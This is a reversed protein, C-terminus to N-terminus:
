DVVVLFRRASHDDVHAGARGEAGVPIPIVGGGQGCARVAGKCRFSEREREAGSITFTVRGLAVESWAWSYTWKGLSYGPEDSVGKSSRAGDQRARQGPWSTAMELSRAGRAWEGIDMTWAREYRERVLTGVQGGARKAFCCPERACGSGSGRGRQRGIGGGVLGM